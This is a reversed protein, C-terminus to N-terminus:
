VDPFLDPQVAAEAAKRRRPAGPAPKKAASRKRRNAAFTKMRRLGTLLQVLPLNEASMLRDLERVAASNPELSHLLDRHSRAGDVNGSFLHFKGCVIYWHRVESIHFVTRGPCLATLTLGDGTLLREATEMDLEDLALEALTMRGFLYDPHARLTAGCLDRAERIRGEGRLCISHWNQFCLVDPYRSALERLEKAMGTNGKILRAHLVDMRRRVSVPLQEVAPDPIPEWTVDFGAVHLVDAAGDPPLVRLRKGPSRAGADPIGTRRRNRKKLSKSVVAATVFL